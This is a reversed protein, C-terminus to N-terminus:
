ALLAIVYELFERYNCKVMDKFREEQKWGKIMEHPLESARLMEQEDMIKLTKTVMWLSALYKIGPSNPYGCLPTEGRHATYLKMKNDVFEKFLKELQQKKTTGDTMNIEINM